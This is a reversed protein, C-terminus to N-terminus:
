DIRSVSDVADTKETAVVQMKVTVIAPEDSASDVARTLFECECEAMVSLTVKDVIFKNGDHEFVTWQDEPIESPHAHFFSVMRYSRGEIEARMTVLKNPLERSM